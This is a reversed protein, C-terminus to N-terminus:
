LNRCKLTFAAFQMIGSSPQKFVSRTDLNYLTSSPFLPIFVLPPFLADPLHSAESYGSDQTTHGSSFPQRSGPVRVHGEPLACSWGEFLSSAADPKVSSLLLPSWIGLKLRCHWSDAKTAELEAATLHLSEVGHRASVPVRMYKTSSLQQHFDKCTSSYPILLHSFTSSWLQYRLGRTLIHWQLQTLTTGLHVIVLESDSKGCGRVFSLVM